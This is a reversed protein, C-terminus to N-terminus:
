DTDLREFVAWREAWPRGAAHEVPDDSVLRFHEEGLAEALAEATIGWPPGGAELPKDAPFVLAHVRARFHLLRRAMEGYEPRLEPPIACFFTHEFLLDFTPKAVYGLANAAVFHGGRAELPPEVMPRLEELLDVAVVQWGAAALAAADHGRGCGPVFARAGHGLQRVRLGDVALHAALEPHPGGLDWPTNGSEYREAWRTEMAESYRLGDCGATM